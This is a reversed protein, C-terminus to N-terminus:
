DSCHVYMTPVFELRKRRQPFGYDKGPHLRLFAGEGKGTERPEYPMVFFRGEVVPMSELNMRYGQRRVEFPQLLASSSGAAAKKSRLPRL